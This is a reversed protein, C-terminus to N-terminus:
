KLYTGNTGIRGNVKSSSNKLVFVRMNAKALSSVTLTGGTVTKSEGTVADIYTGNPINNFTAGDFHYRM